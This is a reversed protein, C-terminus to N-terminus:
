HVAAVLCDKLLSSHKALLKHLCKIPTYIDKQQFLLCVFFVSITLLSFFINSNSHINSLQCLIFGSGYLTCVNVYQICVCQLNAYLIISLKALVAHM